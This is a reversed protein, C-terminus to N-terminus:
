ELGFAYFVQGPYDKYIGELLVGGKADKLEKKLDDVSNIKVKNVGTIIFGEQMDTQSSLIGSQLDKVVVGGEIGLDKATTEDLTEFSAGLIDLIDQKDRTILKKVGKQNALIVEYSFEKGGRNVTVVVEDGPRHRGIQELLDASKLIPTNDIKVIVDGSKIGADLAASNETLSDVYTGENVKLNEKKVLEGDIDRILVGLFARQVIGYKMIDEV